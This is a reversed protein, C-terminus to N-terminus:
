CMPPPNPPFENPSVPGVVDPPTRPILSIVSGCKCKGPCSNRVVAHHNCHGNRQKPCGHRLTRNGSGTAEPGM